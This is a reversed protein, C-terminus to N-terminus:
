RPAPAAAIAWAVEVWGPECGGAPAGGVDNWVVEGSAVAAGVKAAGVGGGTCLLVGAPGGLGDSAGGLDMRLVEGALAGTGVRLVGAKGM